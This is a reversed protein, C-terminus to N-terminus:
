FCIEDNDYTYCFSITTLSTCTSYMKASEEEEGSRDTSGGLEDIPVATRSLTLPATRQIFGDIVQVNTTAQGFIGLDICLNVIPNSSNSDYLGQFGFTICLRSPISITLGGTVPTASLIYQQSIVWFRGSPFCEIGDAPLGISFQKGTKIQTAIIEIASLRISNPLRIQPSNLAPNTKM